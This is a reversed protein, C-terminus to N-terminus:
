KVTTSTFKVCASNGPSKLMKCTQNNNTLIGNVHGAVFFHWQLFFSNKEEYALITGILTDTKLSDARLDIRELQQLTQM